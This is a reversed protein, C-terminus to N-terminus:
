PEKSKKWEDASQIYISLKFKGNKINDSFHFHPEGHENRGTGYSDGGRVFIDYSFESKVNVRAMEYLQEQKQEFNINKFNNVYEHLNTIITQKKM